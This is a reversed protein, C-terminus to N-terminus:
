QLLFTLGISFSNRDIKNIDYSDNNVNDENINQWDSISYNIKLDAETKLNLLYNLPINLGFGYRNVPYQPTSYQLAKLMEENERGYSLQLIDLFTLEIGYNPHFFIFDYDSGQYIADFSFQISIPQLGYIKKLSPSFRYGIGARMEQYLYADGFGDGLKIKSNLLNKIQFGVGFKDENTIKFPEPINYLIGLNLDFASGSISHSDVTPINTYSLNDNYYNAMIGLSLNDFLNLAYGLSYIKEKTEGTFKFSLSNVSLGINGLNDPLQAVAAYNYNNVDNVFFGIGQGSSFLASYGKVSTIGAVNYFLAETGEAVGTYANGLRIVRSYQSTGIIDTFTQAFSLTSSILLLYIYVVFTKKM